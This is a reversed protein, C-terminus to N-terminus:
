WVSPVWKYRVKQAFDAYGALQQQLLADELVTRVLLVVIRVVAVVLCWSSKLLVAECLPQVAAGVYGPHRVFRYPGSQCVRHGRDTQIRVVSSFWYNSIM